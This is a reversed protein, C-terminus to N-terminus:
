GSLPMRHKWMDDYFPKHHHYLEMLRSNQELRFDGDATKRIGKSGTLDSHWGAVHKWDEPLEHSWSLSHELFPIDLRECYTRIVNETDALLDAADIVLPVKGTVKATHTFQRHQLELGIEESTLGPDLKFYSAISRVPDRILYTSTIMELFEHDDLIYDAVYYCMDKVFVTRHEAAAVIMARIDQYSTPQSPDPDFHDLRKKRDHVYYLYIFPEHLTTMDGRELM